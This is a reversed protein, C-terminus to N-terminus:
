AGAVGEGGFADFVLADFGVEIFFAFPVQGVVAAHDGYKLSSVSFQNTLTADDHVVRFFRHFVATKLQDWIVRKDRCSHAQLHDSKVFHDGLEERYQM